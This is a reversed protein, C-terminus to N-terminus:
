RSTVYAKFEGGGLVVLEEEDLCGSGTRPFSLIREAPVNSHHVVGNNSSAFIAAIERNLSWSSAPNSTVRITNGSKVGRKGSSGRKVPLTKIGLRKLEAQTQDYMARAIVRLVARDDDSFDGVGFAAQTFATVKGNWLDQTEGTLRGSPLPPLGFEEQVARQFQISLPHTDWSTSAWTKVVASTVQQVFNASGREWDKGSPVAGVSWTTRTAWSSKKYTDLPIRRIVEEALNKAVQAKYASADARGWGQTSDDSGNIVKRTLDFDQAATGATVPPLKLPGSSIGVNPIPAPTASGTRPGTTVPVFVPKPKPKPKPLLAGPPLVIEAGGYNLASVVVSGDPNVSVVQVKGWNPVDDIVAGTTTPVQGPLVPTAVGLKKNAAVLEESGILHAQYLQYAEEPTTITQGYSTTYAKPGLTSALQSAKTPPTVAAVTTAPTPATPEPEPGTLIKLPSPVQPGQGKLDKTYQYAQQYSMGMEAAITKTDKGQLFLEQAQAKKTGAKATVQALSIKCVTVAELLRFSEQIPVGESCPAKQRQYLTTCRCNPHAPPMGHTSTFAQANLIWGQAQNAACIPDVRNDSVTLWSKEMVLGLAEMAEIPQANGQEYAYALETVAIMQARDRSFGFTDKLSNRMTSWAFGNSIGATLEERLLDRTANNLGTVTDAAYQSMWGVARPNPLGFPTPSLGLDKATSKSASDYAKGGQDILGMGLGYIPGQGPAVGMVNEIWANVAEFSKDDWYREWKELRAQRAQEDVLEDEIDDEASSQYDFTLTGFDQRSLADLGFADLGGGTEPDRFWDQSLRQHEVEITSEQLEAEDKAAAFLRQAVRIKLILYAHYQELVKKDRKLIREMEKVIGKRATDLFAQATKTLSPELPDTARVKRRRDLVELLLQAEAVTPDKVHLHTEVEHVLQLAENVHLASVQNM